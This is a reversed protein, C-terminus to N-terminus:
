YNKNSSLKKIEKLLEKNELNYTIKKGSRINLPIYEQGDYFILRYLKANKKNAKANELKYGDQNESIVYTNYEHQYTHLKNINDIVKELKDDKLKPNIYLNRSIMYNSFYNYLSLNNSIGLNRKLKKTDKQKKQFIYYRSLKSFEFSAKIEELLSANEDLNSNTIIQYYKNIKAYNTKNLYQNDENHEGKFYSSYMFTFNQFTDTDVLELGCKERMSDILFQKDVLYERIPDDSIMTNVVDIANGIYGVEEKYFKVIEYLKLETGYRNTYQASFSNKNGFKKRIIDADFTTILLYGNDAILNNINKCFNYWSDETSLYYHITFQCNILGYKIDGTLYKDIKKINEETMNSFIKKQVESSFVGTSDANILVVEKLKKNRQKEQMYRNNASDDITFLSGYDRDTGVYLNYPLKFFKILDGGRGCGIDLVNTSNKFYEKIMKTKIFNHFARMHVGINIKDTYYTTTKRVISNRILDLNIEYTDDKALSVLTDETVPNVISNWIRNAIEIPNGYKRNYLRISENKDIRTRIPIWRSSNELDPVNTNYIFEVVSNTSILKGNIDRANGNKDLLIKAEQEEEDVLFPIPREIITDGEKTLKGVYLKCIKYHNCEGETIIIEQNKKDIAFRIYFDISNQTEPKWKYELPQSDYQGHINETTISYSKNEPTFILGDLTYPVINQRTYLNWMLVSYAYIESKSIGIPFLYCKPIMFFKSKNKSFSTNVSKWYNKVENEYYKLVNELTADKKSSSFDFLPVNCNFYEKLVNKLIGLRKKLTMNQDNKINVGDHLFIDFPLFVMVNNIYILEGDIATSLLNQSVDMDLIKIKMNPNILTVSGKSIFLIYREGDAKDTITYNQYMFNVIHQKELTISNRLSLNNTYQEGMANRFTSIINDKESKRYIVPTDYIDKFVTSFISSFEEFTIKNTFEIELEFRDRAEPNHLNDLKRREKVHTLDLKANETIKFSLRDKLRYIINSGNNIKELKPLVVEDSLKIRCYYESLDFLNESNRSKNIITPKYLECFPVLSAFVQNTSKYQNEEVFLDILEPTELSIRTKNILKSNENNLLIDLSFLEETKYTKTYESAIKEFVVISIDNFSIELEKYTNKNNSSFTNNFANILKNINTIENDSFFDSM